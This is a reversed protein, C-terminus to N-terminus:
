PLPSSFALSPKPAAGITAPSGGARRNPRRAASGAAVSLLYRFCDEVLQIGYSLPHCRHALFGPDHHQLDDLFENSPDFGRLLVPVQRRLFLLLFQVVHKAPQPEQHIEQLLLFSEHLCGARQKVARHLSQTATVRPIYRDASSNPRAMLAQWLPTRVM